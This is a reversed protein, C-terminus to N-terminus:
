QYGTGDLAISRRWTPKDGRPSSQRSAYGFPALLSFSSGSLLFARFTNDDAGVIQGLNNIAVPEAGRALPSISELPTFTYQAKAEAAFGMLLALTGLGCC